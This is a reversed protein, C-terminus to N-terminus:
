RPQKVSMALGAILSFVLPFALLGVAAVRMAERWEVCERSELSAIPSCSNMPATLAASFDAVGLTFRDLRTTTTPDPRDETVSPSVVSAFLYAMAAFVAISRGLASGFFVSMSVVSALVCVMEIWARFANAWFGCASVLLHLDRRPNVTVSSKGDNRFSLEGDAVGEPADPPEGDVLPVRVLTRTVHSLDGRRGEYSFSGAVRDLRGFMDAIRIRVSKQGEMGDPVSFSWKVTEGPAVSQFQDCVYQKLYKLIEAKGVEAAKEKFDPFNEEYEAYLREAAAAPDELTPRVVHDCVVGSGQRLCLIACSLALVAAGVLTLAVIRGLAVVFLRVPRVLTLQLRMADRDRSLTGAAAASLSVLVLAFVVGLSYRACLEFAGDATGDDRLFRPLVLMWASSAAVLALVTKSRLASVLELRVISAFAKM